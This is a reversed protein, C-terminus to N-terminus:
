KIQNLITMLNQQQEGTLYPMVQSISSVIKNYDFSGDQKQKAINKTLESMLQSQDMDKYTNFMEEPTSQQKNQQNITNDQVKSTEKFDSLKM